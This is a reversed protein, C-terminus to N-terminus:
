FQSNLIKEREGKYISEERSASHSGMSCQGSSRWNYRLLCWWCSLHQPQIRPTLQSHKEIGNRHM